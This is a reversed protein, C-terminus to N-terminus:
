YNLLPISRPLEADDEYPVYSDYDSDYDDHVTEVKPKNDDVVNVTMSDGYKDSIMQNFLLMRHQMIPQRLEEATLPRV